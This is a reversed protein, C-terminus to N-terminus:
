VCNVLQKISGMSIGRELAFNEIVTSVRKTSSGIKNLEFALSRQQLKYINPLNSMSQNHISWDLCLRLEYDKTNFSEWAVSDKYTTSNGVHIVEDSFYNDADPMGNFTRILNLRYGQLQALLQYIVLTEFYKQWPPIPRNKSDVHLVQRLARIQQNTPIKSRQGFGYKRGIITGEYDYTCPSVEIKNKVARIAHINLFLFYTCGVRVDTKSKESWNWICNAYINDELETIEEFLSPNFVFCDIDLWGFHYENTEFLFEWVTKDDVIRTIHHFPRQINQQLWKLEDEKLGSGILVMNVHTPVYDLAKIMWHLMGSTFFMYIIKQKNRLGEYFKQFEKLHRRESLKAQFEYYIGKIRAQEKIRLKPM